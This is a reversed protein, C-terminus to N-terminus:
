VINEINEQIKDKIEEKIEEIKKSCDEECDSKTIGATKPCEDCDDKLLYSIYLKYNNDM